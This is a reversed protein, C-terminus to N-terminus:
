TYGASGAPEGASTFFDVIERVIPEPTVQCSLHGAGPVVRVQADALHAAAFRVGEGFWVGQKSATGRLLLVPVTIKGLVSPDTPSLGDSSAGQEIEQLDVPLYRTAAALEGSAWLAALEQENGVFNLFTRAADRYEGAAYQEGMRALVEQFSALLEESVVEFVVPEWAAVAAVAAARAAAGLVYM